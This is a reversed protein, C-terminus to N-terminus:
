RYRATDPEGSEHPVGVTTLGGGTSPGRGRIGPHRRALGQEPTTFQQAASRRGQLHDTDTPACARDRM